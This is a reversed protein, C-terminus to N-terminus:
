HATKRQVTIFKQEDASSHPIHSTSWQVYNSCHQSNAACFATCLTWTSASATAVNGQLSHCAWPAAPASGVRNAAQTSAHANWCAKVPLHLSSASLYLLTTCAPQFITSMSSHLCFVIKTDLHGVQLDVQLEQYKHLHAAHWHNVWLLFSM